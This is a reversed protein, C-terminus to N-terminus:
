LINVILAAETTTDLSDALPVFGDAYPVNFPARPAPANDFRAQFAFRFSMKSSLRTTLAVRGNIRSDELPDVEGTPTDESNLNLLAEFSAEFGTTESLTGKYGAFLRASHISVADGVAAYDEYTFDYGIESVLEHMTTKFIQRSYGIQGGGFFEKGAPEDAAARGTVFASNHETFFRDYRGKILWFKSTTSEAIQIENESIRMDMNEDIALWIDSQAYAASGEISFKNDGSKRSASVGASATTTRSNGSTMIIGAQASAKWEVKKVEEKKGYEFKPDQAVAQGGLALLIVAGLVCARRM